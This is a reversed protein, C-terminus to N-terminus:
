FSSKKRPRIAEWQEDTWELMSQASAGGGSQMKGGDIVVADGNIYAAGDRVLFAALNACEIHEGVRRLPITKALEEDGGREKPMLRSRAIGRPGWEAALSKTMALVGAKAMASPVTFPAGMRASVTLISM